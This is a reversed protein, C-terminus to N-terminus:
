RELGNILSGINESVGMADELTRAERPIGRIVGVYHREAVTVSHGLQEASRYASAAGFIGPANTLYTGCTRRLAQWTFTKPAGFEVRMRKAAANITGPTHAFVRGEAPEPRLAGLLGRLAPSVELGIVGKRKTSSGGRPVIEGVARGESDLADLDIESWDLALAAGARMGTLLVTALFPAIPTFRPTSGLPRRGAHEERTEAFTVADHKLAAELLARLEPPKLYDGRELVAAERKLARRLDDHSCRPLLDRDCLYGLITRTARLERNVTYASRPLATQKRAGRKGGKAQAHRPEAVLAERFTLLRARTLDDASRVGVRTAWAKLKEAVARYIALTKPALRAHAEFYAAVAADFGTGTARPAGSELELRRKALARSKMVAWADRQETTSLEAPLSEKVMGGSDPDRYRARWGIRRGAEPKILVVGPHKPGRSRRSRKSSTSKSTSTAPM